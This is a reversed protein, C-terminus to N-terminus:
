STWWVLVFGAIVTNLILLEGLRLMRRRMSPGPRDPEHHTGDEVYHYRATELTLLGLWILLWLPLSYLAADIVWSYSAGPVEAMVYALSVLLTALSGGALLAWNIPVLLYRVLVGAIILLALIGTSSLTLTTDVNPILARNVMLAILFTVFSTAAIINTMHFAAPERFYPRRLLAPLASVILLAMGIIPLAVLVIPIPSPVVYLVSASAISSGSTVAIVTALVLFTTARYWGSVMLM